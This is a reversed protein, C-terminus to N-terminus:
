GKLAELFAKYSMSLKKDDSTIVSVNGQHIVLKKLPLHERKMMPINREKFCKDCIFFMFAGTQGALYVPEALDDMTMKEACIFCKEEM